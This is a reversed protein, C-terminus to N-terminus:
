DPMVCAVSGNAKATVNKGNVSRAHGNAVITAAEGKTGAFKVTEVGAADADTDTSVGAAAAVRSHGLSFTVSGLAGPCAALAQQFTMSSPKLTVPGGAAGAVLTSSILLSAFYLATRKM